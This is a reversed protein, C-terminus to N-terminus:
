LHEQLPRLQELVVMAMLLPAQARLPQVVVVVVLPQIITLAGTLVKDLLGLVEWAMKIAQVAVVVVLAPTLQHTVKM